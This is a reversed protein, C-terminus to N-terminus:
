YSAACCVSCCLQVYLLMRCSFQGPRQSCKESLLHWYLLALLGGEAGSRCMVTKFAPKTTLELATPLADLLMPMVEAAQCPQKAQLVGRPVQVIILWPPGYSWNAAKLLLM